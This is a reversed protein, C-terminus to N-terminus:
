EHTFGILMAVFVYTQASENAIILRNEKVRTVLNGTKKAKTNAQKNPQETISVEGM